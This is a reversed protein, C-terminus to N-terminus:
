VCLSLEQFLLLPRSPLFAFPTHLCRESLQLPLDAPHPRYLPILSRFFSFVRNTRGEQFTKEGEIQPFTLLKAPCAVSFLSRPFPCVASRHGNGQSIECGQAQSRRPLSSELLNQWGVPHGELSSSSGLQPHPWNIV